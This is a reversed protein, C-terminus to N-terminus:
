RCASFHAWASAKQGILRVGGAPRPHLPVYRHVPSGAHIVPETSNGSQEHRGTRRGSRAFPFARCRGALMAHGSVVVARKAVLDLAIRARIRTM